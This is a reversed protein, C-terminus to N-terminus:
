GNLVTHRRQKKTRMCVQFIGQHNFSNVNVGRLSVFLMMPGKVKPTEEWGADM